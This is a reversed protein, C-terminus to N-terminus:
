ELKQYGIIKKWRNCNGFEVQQAVKTIWIRVYKYRARTQCSDPVLRARTQCSYPVLTHCSNPVHKANIHCTDQKIKAEMLTNGLHEIM